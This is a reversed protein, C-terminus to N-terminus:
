KYMYTRYLEGWDWYTYGHFLFIRLKGILHFIVTKYIPLASGAVLPLVTLLLLGQEFVRPRILSM